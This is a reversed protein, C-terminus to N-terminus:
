ILSLSASILGSSLASLTFYKIAAETSNTALETQVPLVSNLVRKPTVELDFLLKVTGQPKGSGRGSDSAILVYLNYSFGMIGFLVTMFSNSSILITLFFTGLLIYTAFDIVNRPHTLVYDRSLSLVLTALLVVLLKCVTTYLDVTVNDGFM